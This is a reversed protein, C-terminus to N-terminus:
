MADLAEVLYDVDTENNFFDTSVRFGQPKKTVIVGRGALQAV